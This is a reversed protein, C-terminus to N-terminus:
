GAKEQKQSVKLSTKLKRKAQQQRAEVAHELIDFTLQPKAPIISSQQNEIRDVLEPLKFNVDVILLCV